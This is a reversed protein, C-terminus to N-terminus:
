SAHRQGQHLHLAMLVCAMEAVEDANLTKVGAMFARANQDVQCCNAGNRMHRPRAIVEVETVQIADVLRLLEHAVKRTPADGEVVFRALTKRMRLLAPNM